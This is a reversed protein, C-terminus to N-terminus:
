NSENRDRENILKLMFNNEAELRAAEQMLGCYNNVLMEHRRHLESYSAVLEREEEGKKLM